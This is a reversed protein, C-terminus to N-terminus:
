ALSQIEEATLGSLDAFFKEKPDAKPALYKM